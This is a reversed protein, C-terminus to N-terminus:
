STDPNPREIGQPCAASRPRVIRSETRLKEGGGCALKARDNRATAERSRNAIADTGLMFNILLHRAVLFGM